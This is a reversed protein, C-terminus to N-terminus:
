FQDSEVALEDDGLEMDRKALARDSLKDVTQASRDPEAEEPTKGEALDQEVQAAEEETLDDVRVVLPRNNAGIQPSAFTVTLKRAPEVKNGEPDYFTIDVAQQNVIRGDTEAAVADEVAAQQKQTMDASDVWTAVMTSDAPLAGEPAIVRVTLVIQDNGDADKQKFAHEFSQAPMEAATEPDVPASDPDSDDEDEQLVIDDAPNYPVGANLDEETLEAEEAEEDVEDDPVTITIFCGPGHVHEETVEEQGCILERTVEYCEDTHVHGESEELGCILNGEEDYCEDTHQHGESEELGCVLERTEIYCSDDHVHFEVEPLPCVLEGDDDYCNVTHYHAVGPLAHCDLVTVQHVMALGRQRLASVVSIGVIVAMVALVILYRTRRENDQLLSAIRERVTMDM